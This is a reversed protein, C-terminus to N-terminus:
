PTWHNLWKRLLGGAELLHELPVAQREEHLGVVAEGRLDGFLRAEFPDPAAAERDARREANTVVVLRAPRLHELDDLEHGVRGGHRDQEVAVGAVAVEVARAAEDHLELLAADGTTGSPSTTYTTPGQASGNYTYSGVTVTVIPSAKAITFATASSSASEFNSDGSLAVTAIYTGADTPLTASAPYTTGGTGEYTWTPTGTTGSPNTTYTTPGQASGNYTYSGVTVTVIPSAKAITFATASSSASEFNSDAALTM